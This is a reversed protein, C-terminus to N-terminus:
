SQTTDSGINDGTSRSVPCYNYCRACAMCHGQNPMFTTRTRYTSLKLLSVGFMLGVFAGVLGTGVRFRRVLILGKKFTAEANGSNEDFAQLTDSTYEIQPNVARLHLEESLAVTPHLRALAPSALQGIFFGAMILFPLLLFRWFFNHRGKQMDTFPKDANPTKIADFPCSDTCLGCLICEEKLIKVPRWAFRGSLQLLVGYPCVFRCYPRAVFAGIALMIAGTMLMAPPGSLRFFGVFPDFKCIMFGAGLAALLVAIGFYFYRFLELVMVLWRPLPRIRGFIMLDQIAGLPCVAACFVRGFFIAAVLPLTFLLVVPLPITYNAFGIAAAMNQMSGVPCICGNRMFGFYILSAAMLIFVGARTRRVHVLWIAAILAITLLAVDLWDRLVSEPMIPM